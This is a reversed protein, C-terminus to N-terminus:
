LIRATKPQGPLYTVDLRSGPYSRTSTAASTLARPSGQGDDHWSVEAWYRPSSMGDGPDCHLRTVSGSTTRGLERLQRNRRSEGRGAVVIIVVPAAVIVLVVLVLDVVLGASTDPNMADTYTPM